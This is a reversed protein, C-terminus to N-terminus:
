GGITAMSESVLPNKFRNQEAEFGDKTRSNVAARFTNLVDEDKAGARM